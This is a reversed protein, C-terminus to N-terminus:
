IQADFNAIFNCEDAIKRLNLIAYRMRGLATNISINESDAIEKFSMNNYLRMRVIRQQTNPLRDVLKGLKILAMEYTMSDFTDDYLKANNLLNYTTDDDASVCNDDRRFHDIILNHAIRSLWSFFKGNDTYRHQKITTIAKFFTDQFVDEALDSNHTISVIYNFLRDKHRFLLVEFAQNCGQEYSRVLEEDTLTQLNNM